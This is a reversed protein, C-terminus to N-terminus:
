EESVDGDVGGFVDIDTPTDNCYRLGCTDNFAPLVAYRGAGEDRAVQFGERIKSRVTRDTM